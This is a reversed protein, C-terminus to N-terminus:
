LTEPDLWIDQLLIKVYDSSRRVFKKIKQRNVTTLKYERNEIRAKFKDIDYYDLDNGTVLSEIMIM